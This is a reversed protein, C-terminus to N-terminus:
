FVSSNFSRVQCSSLLLQQVLVPVGHVVHIPTSFHDLRFQLTQSLYFILNASQIDAASVFLCLTSFQLCPRAFQLSHNFLKLNLKQPVFAVDFTKVFGNVRLASLDKLQLM